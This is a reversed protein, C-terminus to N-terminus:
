TLNCETKAFKSANDKKLQVNTFPSMSLEAVAKHWAYSDEDVSDVSVAYVSLISKYLRLAVNGDLGPLAFDQVVSDM